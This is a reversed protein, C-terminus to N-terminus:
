HNVITLNYFSVMAKRPNSPIVDEVINISNKSFILTYATREKLKISKRYNAIDVTINKETFFYKTAHYPLLNKVAKGGVSGTISQSGADAHFVRALSANAPIKKGYLGNAQSVSIMSLYIFFLSVVFSLFKVKM